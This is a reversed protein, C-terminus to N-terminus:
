TSEVMVPEEHRSHNNAWWPKIDIHWKVIIEQSIKFGHLNRDDFPVLSTLSPNGSRQRQLDCVVSIQGTLLGKSRDSRSLVEEALKRLEQVLVSRLYAEDIVCTEINGDVSQTTVNDAVVSLQLGLKQVRYFESVKM